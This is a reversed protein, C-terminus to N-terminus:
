TVDRQAYTLLYTMFKFLAYLTIGRIHQIYWYESFLRTKPLRRFSDTTFEFRSFM